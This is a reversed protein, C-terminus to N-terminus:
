FDLAIFVNKAIQKSCDMYHATGLLYLRKTSNSLTTPIKDFTKDLTAPRNVLM